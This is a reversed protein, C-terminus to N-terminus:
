EELEKIRKRLAELEAIQEEIIMDKRVLQETKESLQEKQENIMTEQESLQEEQKSIMTEQKSLQEEQKDITEQMEDIMYQVTNDDLNKLEKSFMSMVKEVNCCLEYVQQYMSRFDPYKEILGM